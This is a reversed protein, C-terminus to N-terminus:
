AIGAVVGGAFVESSRPPIYTFYRQLQLPTKGNQGNTKTPFALSPSLGSSLSSLYPATCTM